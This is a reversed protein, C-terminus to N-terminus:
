RLAEAILARVLEAETIKRRKALRALGRAEAASFYFQKVVTRARGEGRPGRLRKTGNIETVSSM